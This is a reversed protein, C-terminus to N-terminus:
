SDHLIIFIKLLNVENEKDDASSEETTTEINEETTENNANKWLTAIERVYPDDPNVLRISTINTGAHM